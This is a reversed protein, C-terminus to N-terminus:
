RVSLNKVTTIGDKEIKVIYMGTNLDAINVKEGSTVTKSVVVQGVANVITMSAENFEGTVTLEDNAPNPFMAFEIANNNEVGVIGGPYKSLVLQTEMPQPLPGGSLVVNTLTFIPLNTTAFDFYDYQTIDVDVTGFFTTLTANTVTKVRNVGTVTVASPFMMTGTGDFTTTTSGTAPLDGFGPVSVTGSFNDTVSASLAFPYTMLTAEDTDWTAVIDGLSAETYVFGQSVRDSSSSTMYTTLLGEIAFATSSSTFDSANPATAAAMQQITRTEGAYMALNTYDWMASAGTETDLKMTNSDCLYMSATAGNAPENAQTIQAMVGQSFTIVTAILLTKKM